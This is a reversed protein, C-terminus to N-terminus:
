SLYNWDKDKLKKILIKISLLSGIFSGAMNFFDFVGLRNINISQIEKILNEKDYGGFKIYSENIKKIKYLLYKKYFYSNVTKKWSDLSHIDVQRTKNKKIPDGISSHKLNNNFDNFDHSNDENIKLFKYIENISSDTNKVLEDYTIIFDNKNNHNELYKGIADFGFNIDFSYGFYNSFRRKTWTNLISSIISVPSRLIFIFKSDPFAMKLEDLIYYNRPTKDIFYESDQFAELLINKYSQGISKYLSEELIGNSAVFKNAASRQSAKSLISVSSKDKIFSLLNLLIWNEQDSAVDKHNMLIKQLLTSGSRPLSILFILKM